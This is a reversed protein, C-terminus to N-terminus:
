WNYGCNNVGCIRLVYVLSKDEPETDSSKKSLSDEEEKKSVRDTDADTKSKSEQFRGTARKLCNKV